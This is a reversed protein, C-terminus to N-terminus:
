TRGTAVQDGDFFLRAMSLDRVEYLDSADQGAALRQPIQQLDYQDANFQMHSNVNGPRFGTAYGFYM